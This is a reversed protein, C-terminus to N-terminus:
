QNHEHATDANQLTNRRSAMFTNFAKSSLLGVIGIMAIAFDVPLYTANYVLSYAWVGWGTWAWDSFFLVGALVHSAYRILFYAVATVFLPWHASLIHKKETIAKNFRKLSFPVLGTLGLVSYPILYDLLLNWPNVIYPQTLFQLLMNATVIILGKHFGFFYCYIIIPVTAFLTISGGQPM